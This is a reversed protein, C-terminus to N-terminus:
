FQAEHFKDKFSTCEYFKKKGGGVCVYIFKYLKSTDSYNMNSEDLRDKAKKLSDNLITLIDDNSGNFQIAISISQKQKNRYDLLKMYDFILAEDKVNKCYKFEIAYDPEEYEGIAFDIFGPYGKSTLAKYEKNVKKYKGGDDRFKKISTAWEPHLLTKGDLSVPYEESIMQSFLHHFYRENLHVKSNISELEDVVKVIFKNIISDIPM